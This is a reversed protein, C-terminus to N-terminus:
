KGIPGAIKKIDYFTGDNKNPHVCEIIMKTIQTSNFRPNRKSTKTNPFWCSSNQSKKGCRIWNYTYMNYRM